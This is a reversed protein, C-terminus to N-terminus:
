RGRTEGQSDNLFSPAQWVSQGNLWIQRPPESMSSAQRSLEDILVDREQPTLHYDRVLLELGKGRPLFQFNRDPWRLTLHSSLHRAAANETEVSEVPAPEILPQGVTKPAGSDLTSVREQAQPIESSPTFSARVAADQALAEMDQAALFAQPAYSLHHGAHAGLAYLELVGAMHAGSIRGLDTHMLQGLVAEGQASTSSRQGFVGHLDQQRNLQESSLKSNDRLGLKREFDQGQNERQPARQQDTAQTWLSGGVKVAM